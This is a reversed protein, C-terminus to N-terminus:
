RWVRAAARDGVWDQEQANMEDSINQVAEHIAKLAAAQARESQFGYISLWVRDFAEREPTNMEDVLWQFDRTQLKEFARLLLASESPSVACPDYLMLRAAEYTQVKLMRGYGRGETHRLLFNFTGLMLAATLRVDVSVTPRIEVCNDSVQAQAKNISLVLRMKNIIPLVLPAPDRAELRYWEGSGRGRAACTATKHFGQSEGWRIYQEVRTGKLETRPKDVVLLSFSLHEPRVEPMIIEAPRLIVPELFKKEIKWERIRAKDLYFFQNAGTKIGFRVEAIDGLRVLKERNRELITWYIESARLYKGGWKNGRYHAFKMLPGATAKGSRKPTAGGDSEQTPLECGDELLAKQDIPYIQYEPVTRRAKTAEIEEFVVPSLVHEFPVKFLIFRALQDLGWVRSEDPPSLLAIVTNVDASAFTRRTQNDLLMKIHCHKL